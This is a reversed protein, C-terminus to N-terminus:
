FVFGVRARFVQAPRAELTTADFAAGPFLVGHSLTLAFGDASAYRLESDLELGLAREGSPTSTPKVAWSAVLAAGLELAGPGVELVAVRAHPKVYVADTVTGIIERFLVQDVHYDPHFRFNDVTTDRPPSAQAGDFSGPPPAPDGFVPFAGFGPADDGSAYGADVGLRAAGATRARM